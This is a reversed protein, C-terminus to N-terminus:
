RTGSGTNRYTSSCASYRQTRRRLLWFPAYGGLILLTALLVLPLLSWPWPGLLDIISPHKPPGLLYMYNAGLLWDIPMVIAALVLTTLWVRLPTGPQLRLGLGLTLMLVAVVIGGHLVFYRVCEPHPFAQALDPTLLSQTTGGMGWIFALEYLRQWIPRPPFTRGIGILTAATILVGIDCLHLPL